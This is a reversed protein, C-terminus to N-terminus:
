EKAPASTPEFVYAIDAKTSTESNESRPFVYEAGAKLDSQEAVVLNPSVAAWDRSDTATVTAASDPLVVAVIARYGEAAPDGALAWRLGREELAIPATCAVATIDQTFLAILCVDGVANVGAWYSSAADKGVFRISSEDISDDLNELNISDSLADAKTAPEALLSIVDSPKPNMSANGVTAVGLTTGVIAATAVIGAPVAWSKRRERSLERVRM